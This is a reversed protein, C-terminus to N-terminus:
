DIALPGERYGPIQTSVHLSRSQGSLSSHFIELSVFAWRHCERVQVQKLDSKIAEAQSILQAYEEKYSNISSELKEIIRTM